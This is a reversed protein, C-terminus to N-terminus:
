NAYTLFDLICICKRYHTFYIKNLSDNQWCTKLFEHLVSVDGKDLQFYPIRQVAHDIDCSEILEQLTEFSSVQREYTKKQSPVKYDELTINKSRELTYNGEAYKKLSNDANLNGALQNYKFFPMYKNRRVRSPLLREVIENHNEKSITDFLIDEFLELDEIGTVGKDNLKAINGFGVVVELNEINDLDEIGNVLIKKKPETSIVFDYVMDQLQRLIQIPLKRPISALVEFIESYDHAKIKNIPLSVSKLVHTTHELTPFCPEPQWEVFFLRNKLKEISIFDNKLCEVINKLILEINPDSLSYGMFVIPFDAFLTLIKSNLYHNKNIFNKYDETTLVLSEPQFSCGHIKFIEGIHNQDSFLVQKQGIKVQFDSFINELQDDWNTTLVGSFTCQSFLNIENSYKKNDKKIKNLLECLEIKLPIEINKGSISSYKNRNKEFKKEQWWHEHFEKALISAIELPDQSCTSSYYGFEFKFCDRNDEVFLKLLDMWTPIGYYRISLGSGAFLFPASNSKLLERRFRSKFLDSPNVKRIVTKVPKAM